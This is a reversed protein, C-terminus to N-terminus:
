RSLVLERIDLTNFAKPGGGPFGTARENGAFYSMNRSLDDQWLRIRYDGQSLNFAVSSSSRLEDKGGTQPFILHGRHLAAGKADLIEVARIGCTIGTGIEGAGNAYHAKLVWIGDSPVRLEVPEKETSVPFRFLQDADLARRFPSLHSQNGSERDVAAVAYEPSPGSPDLPMPDRWPISRVKEAALKGDRYIEFDVEAACHFALEAHGDKVTVGEREWVPTPPGFIRGPDADPRVLNREDSAPQDDPEMQIRWSNTATLERGSVPRKSDIPRGNLEVSAVRLPAAGEAPLEVTIHHTKGQVRLNRLSIKSAGPFFEERISQPICPNVIIGDQDSRFGFLVDEIASIFGAVSWLQRQSNIVPGRLGHYEASALGHAWDLNEMNSLNLAAGRILSKLGCEVGPEYGATRSAKTYYATVFPWIGLNHYIPVSKEQPWVVSPGFPGVPYSALLAKAKDPPVLGSEVALTEALLDRRRVPVCSTEGALLFASPTSGAFFEKRIASQLDEAWTEWQTADEPKGLSRAWEGATKLAVYHLVNTSLAKSMGIALTDQATWPPYTQERWDLFSTEGRYLGDSPDFVLGRDQLLTDRLIPYARTAIGEPKTSELALRRLGLALAVRDTSVPYSGGTGTDQLMQTSPKGSVSKKLPSTKFFLSNEMRAPDSRALALDAAYSIDRTWVYHWLRGTEFAELPFPRGDAYAADEIRRVANEEAELRALAYLADIWGGDVEIWPQHRDERVVRNGGEPQNDRLAVKTQMHFERQGPNGRVSLSGQERWGDEGTGWATAGVLALLGFATWLGPMELWTTM